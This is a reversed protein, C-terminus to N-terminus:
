LKNMLQGGLFFALHSRNAISERPQLKSPTSPSKMRKGKRFRLGYSTDLTEKSRPSRLGLEEKFSHLLEVPDNAQEMLKRVPFCSGSDFMKSLNHASQFMQDFQLSRSVEQFFQLIEEDVLTSTRRRHWRNEETTKTMIVFWFSDNIPTAHCMTDDDVPLWDVHCSDLTSNVNTISTLLGLVSTWSSYPWVKETEILHPKDDEGINDKDKRRLVIPSAPVSATTRVYLAPFKSLLNQELNQTAEVSADGSASFNLQLGSLTASRNADYVVCVALPSGTREETRLFEKIKSELDQSPGFRNPISIEFSSNQFGYLSNTSATQREFFIPFTSILSRWVSFMWRQICTKSSLNLQLKAKQANVVAGTFRQCQIYM